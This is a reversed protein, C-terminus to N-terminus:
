KSADRVEPYCIDDFYNEAARMNFHDLNMEKVQLKVSVIGTCRNVYDRNEQDEAMWEQLEKTRIQLCRMACDMDAFHEANTICTVVYYTTVKPGDSRRKQEREIDNKLDVLQHDNLKEIDREKM